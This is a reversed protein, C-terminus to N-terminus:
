AGTESLKEKLKDKIGINDDIDAPRHRRRSISPMASTKKTQFLSRSADNKSLPRNKDGGCEKWFKVQDRKLGKM